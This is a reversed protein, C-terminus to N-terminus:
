TSRLPGAIRVADSFRPSCQKQEFRMKCNQFYFLRSRALGRGEAFLSRIPSVTEFLDSSKATTSNAGRSNWDLM